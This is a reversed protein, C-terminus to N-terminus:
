VGVPIKKSNLPLHEIKCDYLKQDKVYMGSHEVIYTVPFCVGSPNQRLFLTYYSVGEGSSPTGERRYLHFKADIVTDTKSPDFAVIIRGDGAAMIQALVHFSEIRERIVSYKASRMIREASINGKRLQTYFEGRRRPQAVDPMDTLHQFGALHHYHERSFRLTLQMGNEITIRYQFKRLNEYVAITNEIENM